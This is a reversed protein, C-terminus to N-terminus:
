SMLEDLLPGYIQIVAPRPINEGGDPWHSTLQKLSKSTEGPHQVSLFLTKHDPSFCLGTFEADNPATGVRFATGAKPGKMPIYFLANNGFKEYKRKGITSGSIDTVMWLNGNKDFALNDPCSFGSKEGGVIFDSAKFETSLFDGNKEEIKLISGHFNGKKKNNTLAVFVNATGPQIEIDEPRDCPTAGVMKAAARTEILVDLQTKFNKKLVEHKNRDLSVWKGNKIDAVFLEGESLDGRKKSIFKYIHEDNADDGSYVVTRGDKAEVCTASEHAYRGIGTHKKAKGTFPDVEVVWGYRYPHENYFKEWGIRSYIRKKSGYPYEGYFGDYNEECTLITGWPTVGGACNAVMGIAEKKGKIKEGNSFPIPTEGTIRRGNESESDIVWKGCCDKQIKVLSGGVSYRESDIQAKTRKGGSMYGNVFMPSTYEHNAWLIAENENGDIPTFALYDNNFGFTDGKKNIKDGWRVVVDYTLGYSLEVEDTMNPMVTKKVKYQTGTACSTLLSTQSVALAGGMFQVFRRRTVDPTTKETMM